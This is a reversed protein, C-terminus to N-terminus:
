PGERPRAMGAARARRRIAHVRRSSASLLARAPDGRGPFAYQRYDVGDSAIPHSWTRNRGADLLEGYAMGAEEPLRLRSRLVSSSPSLRDSFPDPSRSGRAMFSGAYVDSM